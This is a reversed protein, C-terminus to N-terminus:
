TVCGYGQRLLIITHMTWSQFPFRHSLTSCSPRPACSLYVSSQWGSRLASKEALHRTFRRGPKLVQRIIWSWRTLSAMKHRVCLKLWMACFVWDYFTGHRFNNKFFSSILVSTFWLLSNFYIGLVLIPNFQPVGRVDHSGDSSRDSLSPLTSFLGVLLGFADIDLISTSGPKLVMRLLHLAYNRM